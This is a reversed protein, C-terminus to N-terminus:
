PASTTARMASARWLLRARASAGPVTGAGSSNSAIFNRLQNAAPRPPWWNACPDHRKMVDLMGIGRGPAGRQADDVSRPLLQEFLERAAEPSSAATVRAPLPWPGRPAPSLREIPLWGDNSATSRLRKLAARMSQRLRDTGHWRAQHARVRRLASQRPPHMEFRTERGTGGQGSLKALLRRAKDPDFAVAPGGLAPTAPCGSAKNGTRPPYAANPPRGTSVGGPDSAM